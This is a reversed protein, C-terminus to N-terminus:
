LKHCDQFTHKSYVATQVHQSHVSEQLSLACYDLRSSVLANTALIAAEDTLHQRVWRLDCMQICCTKCFIYVHVAFSFNADFWVCLKKCCTKCCPDLNKLQAHSEFIIFKTEDPNLKFM